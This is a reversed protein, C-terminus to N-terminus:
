EADAQLAELLRNAQAARVDAAEGALQNAALGSLGILEMSHSGALAILEPNAIVKAIAAELRTLVEAPSDSPVAIGIVKRISSSEFAPYLDAAAPIEGLGDLTFSKGGLIALPVLRKTKLLSAQDGVSSIVADAQGSVTALQSPGSGGFQKHEFKAGTAQELLLMQAHFIGGAAATAVRFTNGEKKAERVLTQIKALRSKPTVSIVAPAEAVFFYSWDSVQTKTVGRRPASFMFETVGVCHYGDHPADWAKGIAAGGLVGGVNEVVVDVGLESTLAQATARFIQDTTTGAKGPCFLTISKEPWVSAQPTPLSADKDGGCGVLTVVLASLFHQLTRM